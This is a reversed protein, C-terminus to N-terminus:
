NFATHSFTRKPLRLQLIAQSLPGTRQSESFRGGPDTPAGMWGDMWGAGCGITVTHICGTGAICAKGTGGTFKTATSCKLSACEQSMGPVHLLPYNSAPSHCRPSTAVAWPLASCSLGFYFPSLTAWGIYIRMNKTGMRKPENEKGHNGQESRPRRKQQNWGEKHARKASSM